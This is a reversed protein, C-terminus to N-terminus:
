TNRNRNPLGDQRYTGSTDISYGITTTRAHGLIDRYEILTYVSLFEGKKRHGSCVLAISCSKEKGGALAGIPGSLSRLLQEPPADTLSVGDTIELCGRVSDIWAPTRGDNRCTLKMCVVTEYTTCGGERSTGEAVNLRDYWGLEAMVWARESNVLADASAKAVRANDEAAHAATKLASVQQIAQEILSATQAGASQMERLQGAMVSRQETMERVQRNIGGLTRLAVFVGISGVIFLGINPLNEPSFLRSLYTRPNTGENITRPDAGSAISAPRAGSKSNSQAPTPPLASKSDRQQGYVSLIAIVTLIAIYRV